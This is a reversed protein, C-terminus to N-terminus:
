ATQSQLIHGYGQPVSDLWLPRRVCSHYSKQDIPQLWTHERRPHCCAHWPRTCRQSICPPGCCLQAACYTHLSEGPLGWWGPGWWGRQATRSSRLWFLHLPSRLNTESNVDVEFIDVGLIDYLVRLINVKTAKSYGQEWARGALSGQFTAKSCLAKVQPLTSIYSTGNFSFSWSSIVM